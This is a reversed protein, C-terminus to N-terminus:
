LMTAQNPILSTYIFYIWPKGANIQGQGTFFALIGTTSSYALGNRKLADLMQSHTAATNSCATSNFAANVIVCQTKSVNQKYKLVMQISAAWCHLSKEQKYIPVALKKEQIAAYAPTVSITSIVLCLGLGAIIIRRILRLRANLHSRESYNKEFSM